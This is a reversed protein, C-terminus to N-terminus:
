RQGIGELYRHVIPIGDARGYREEMIAAFRWFVEEGGDGGAYEFGAAAGTARLRAIAAEGSPVVYVHKGGRCYSSKLGALRMTARLTWPGPLFRFRMLHRLEDPKESFALFSAYLVERLSFLTNDIIAARGGPRLIRSVQRLVSLPRSYGLAWCCTVFDFSENPQTKLYELVDSHIFQCRSGFQARAVDLMGSSRDVGTVSGGSLEALLNTAYGTGCALDLCAAGGRVDLRRVIAETLGRMHSTWAEDYGVSVRDYSMNVFTSTDESAALLRLIRALMRFYHRTHGTNV